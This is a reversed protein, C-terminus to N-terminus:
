GLELKLKLASALTQARKATQEGLLMDEWGAAATLVLRDGNISLSSKELLRPNRGSLVCGLRVAAGIARARQRREASIVRAVTEAEPLNPSSTHRAFAV